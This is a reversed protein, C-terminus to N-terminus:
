GVRLWDDDINPTEIESAGRFGLDASGLDDLFIVLVNPRPTDQTQASVRRVMLAVLVVTALLVVVAGGVSVFTRSRRGTGDVTM